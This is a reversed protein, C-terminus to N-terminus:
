KLAEREYPKNKFTIKKLLYRIKYIHYLNLNPKKETNVWPPIAQIFWLM